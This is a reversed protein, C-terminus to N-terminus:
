KRKCFSFSICFNFWLLLHINLFVAAWIMLLSGSLFSSVTELRQSVGRSHQCIHSKDFGEGSCTISWLRWEARLQHEPEYYLSKITEASCDALRVNETPETSGGRFDYMYSTFSILVWINLYCCGCRTVSCLCINFTVKGGGGEDDRGASVCRTVDCSVEVLLHESSQNGHDSCFVANSALLWSGVWRSWFLLLAASSSWTQSFLYSVGCKNLKKNIKLFM